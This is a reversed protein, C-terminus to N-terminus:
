TTIQRVKFPQFNPDCKSKIGEFDINIEGFVNIKEKLGKKVIEITADFFPTIDSLKAGNYVVNAQVSVKIHTLILLYIYDIQEPTFLAFNENMFKAVKNISDTEYFSLSKQTIFGNDNQMVCIDHYNGKKEANLRGTKPNITQFIHRFGKKANFEISFFATCKLRGYPYDTVTQKDLTLSM